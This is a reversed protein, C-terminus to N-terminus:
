CPVDFYTSESGTFPSGGAVKVGDLEAAYSGGGVGDNGADWVIFLFRGCEYLEVLDGGAHGAHVVHGSPDGAQSVVAWSIEEANETVNLRVRLVAAPAAPAGAEAPARRRAPPVFFAVEEREGVFDGRASEHVVEGNLFLAYRGLGYMCCIGDGSKDFIVFTHLGPKTLLVPAFSYMRNSGAELVM